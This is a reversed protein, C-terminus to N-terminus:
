FSNEHNQTEPFTEISLKYKLSKSCQQLIEKEGGMELGKGVIEGIRSLPLFSINREREYKSELKGWRETVKTSRGLM